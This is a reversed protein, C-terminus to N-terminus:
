RKLNIVEALMEDTTTITKSNASFGRQTTIMKVFEQALDVNSQELANTFINGVGSGVTGVVPVGSTTSVSWMNNGMKNLAAPNTFKALALRMLLRPQGNSFNGVVNGQNDVSLKVLSGTGYGDQEQSAVVSPSSYQTVQMDIAVQQSAVAGNSWALAGTNTRVVPAPVVPDSSTDGPTTYLQYTGGADSMSILNGSADFNLTGSGVITLKRPTGGVLDEGDVVANWTWSQDSTKTFYTTMLHTSGLSDFLRISTAYNSTATPNLPDFSVGNIGNNMTTIATLVNTALGLDATAQTLAATQMAADGGNGATGLTTYDPNTVGGAAIVATDLANAAAEIDAAVGSTIATQLDTVATSVATYLPEDIAAQAQAAAQLAPDTPAAALDTYAANTAGWAGLISNDVATASAGIDPVLANSDSDLNTNLTLTSTQGAQTFSQTNAHIPVLDGVTNGESDLEYGMVNYGEPNVFNGGSDFRFAGARTYQNNINGTTPDSVIFFGAGEVALDTNLETSEFTGQSFINDVISLGAGRGVQSTGGSGAIQSSLLDGFITRSAKFGVTNANAINNGIVSMANGNANLGSVGSFLSSSVGM